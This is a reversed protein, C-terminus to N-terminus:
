TKQKSRVKWTYIAVGAILLLIVPAVFLLHNVGGNTPTPGGIPITFAEQFYNAMADRTTLPQLDFVKEAFKLISTHELFVSDVYGKKVLPSVVICPVRRWTQSIGDHNEPTTIDWHDRGGAGGGYDDEVIFIVTTSWFPSDMIAQVMNGTDNDSLTVNAPPHDTYVPTVWTVDALTGAKVDQVFQTSPFVHGSMISRSHTDYLPWYNGISTYVAWSLGNNELRDALTMQDPWYGVTSWDGSPDYNIDPPAWAAVLYFHNPFSMDNSSAYYTDCLVYNEALHWMNPIDNEGYRAYSPDANANNGFRGFYDDFTHNEKILIVIHLIKPSQAVLPEAQVIFLAAVICLCVILRRKPIRGM